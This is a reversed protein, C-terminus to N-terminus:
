HLWFLWVSYHLSSHTIFSWIVLTRRLDHFNDIILFHPTPSLHVLSLMLNYRRTLNNINLPLAIIRRQFLMTMFFCFNVFAVLVMFWGLLYDYHGRRNFILKGEMNVLRFGWHWNIGTSRGAVVRHRLTFDLNFIFGLQKLLCCSSVM